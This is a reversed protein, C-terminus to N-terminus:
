GRDFSRSVTYKFINNGVGADDHAVVGHIVVKYIVRNIKLLFINKVMIGNVMVPQNNTLKARDGTASTEQEIAGVM